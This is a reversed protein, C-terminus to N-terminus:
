PILSTLADVSDIGTDLLGDRMTFNKLSINRYKKRIVPLGSTILTLLGM